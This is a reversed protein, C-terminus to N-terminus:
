SVLFLKGLVELPERNDPEKIYSNLYNSYLIKGSGDVLFVTPKMATIVVANRINIAYERAVKSRLDTLIPYPIDNVRVYREIMRPGNPVIVVVETNFAQFQEYDHRLQAM